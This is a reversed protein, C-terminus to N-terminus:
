VIRVKRLVYLPVRDLEGYVILNCTQQRVGLIQKLFRLHAREIDQSKIFAGYKAVM